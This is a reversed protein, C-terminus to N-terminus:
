YKSIRDTGKVCKFIDYGGCNDIDYNTTGDPLAQDAECFDGDKMTHTCESLDGDSPCESATIAVFDCVDVM